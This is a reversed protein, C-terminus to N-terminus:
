GRRACDLAALLQEGRAAFTDLNARAIRDSLPAEAGLAAALAMAAALDPAAEVDVFRHEGHTGRVRELLSRRVLQVTPDPSRRLLGVLQHPQDTAFPLDPHFVVAFCAPQRGQALLLAVVEPEVQRLLTEFQASSGAFNPMLVLAVEFDDDDSAQLEALEAILGQRQDGAPVVVRRLKGTTRCQRAFPCLGFAEVAGRLYLDNRGLAAQATSDIM